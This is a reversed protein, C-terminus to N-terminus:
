DFMDHKIIEWTMKYFEHCIGDQDPSKHAKGKRVATLLEDMTIPEELMSNATMPITNMGCSILEQICREDIMIHNYRHIMHETFIHMIEKQGMKMIGNEDLVYHITRKTRRKRSKLYHHLTPIEGMTRDREETDM